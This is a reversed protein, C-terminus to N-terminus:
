RYRAKIHQIVKDLILNLADLVGKGETAISEVYPARFRGNLVRELYPIPAADPLDRKNYQFVLPIRTIDLGNSELNEELDVLMQFNENTREIKSDVVFVIGDVNRLLLRRASKFQQRGPAAYLLVRIDYSRIKGVNSPLFTFEVVEEGGVVVLKFEGPVGPCHESIYKISSTKGSFEPGYYVIKLKIERHGVDVIM